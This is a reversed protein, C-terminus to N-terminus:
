QHQIVQNRGTNKAKYLAKDSKEFFSEKTDDQSLSSVGLSSTVNGIIEFKHTAIIERLKTAFKYVCESPDNAVVISFEEGGIRSIIDSKRSNEKILKSFEVLVSDGVAHGYTDNIKKFHDIDLIILSLPYKYRKASYIEKELTEDFYKKNYLQTLYDTVTIKEILKKSTIDQRISTYGVIDGKYDFDPTIVVDVWYYGGSKTKNKLEGNWVKGKSITGWLDKYIDDSMDKHRIISHSKGVLEKQTYECIDCFAKSAYTIIGRADTKSAIVNEEYANFLYDNFKKQSINKSYLSIKHTLVKDIIPKQLYDVRLFDFEEDFFHELTEQDLIFLISIDNSTKNNLVEKALNFEEKYNEFDVDIIILDIKQESITEITKSPSDLDFILYEDDHKKLNTAIKEIKKNNKTYIVIPIINENM